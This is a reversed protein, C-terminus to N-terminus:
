AGKLWCSHFRIKFSLWVLKYFVLNINLDHPNLKFTFETSKYSKCFRPEKQYLLLLFTGPVFFEAILCYTSIHGLPILFISHHEVEPWQRETRLM